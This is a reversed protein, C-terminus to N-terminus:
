NIAKNFIAYRTRAETQLAQLFPSRNTSIVLQGNEVVVPELYREKVSADYAGSTGAVLEIMSAHLTADECSCLKQFLADDSLLFDQETIIGLQQALSLISTFKGYAWINREDLFLDFVQKYFTEVFWEAQTMNMIVLQQNVVGVATLFWHADLQDIFGYQVMDRLTYDLRDVSLHPCDIELLPSKMFPAADLGYKQLILPITSQYIVDKFILEHYNEEELQYVHDVVHSFATHSVDHLLAHIQVDLPQGLMKMCLMTGISHEFRTTNWKPNAFITAGGQHVKKLRQMEKTEILEQLVPELEYSGYLDDTLRVKRM